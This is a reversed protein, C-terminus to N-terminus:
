RAGRASLAAVVIILASRWPELGVALCVAFLGASLAVLAAVTRLIRGRRIRWAVDTEWSWRRFGRLTKRM